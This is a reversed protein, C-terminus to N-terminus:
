SPTPTAMIYHLKSTAKTYSKILKKIETSNYSNKLDIFETKINSCNIKLTEIQDM